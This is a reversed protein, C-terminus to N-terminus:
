RAHGPDIVELDTAPGPLPEDPQFRWPFFTAPMTTNDVSRGQADVVGCVDGLGKEPPRTTWHGAHWQAQDFVVTVGSLTTGDAGLLTGTVEYTYHVLDMRQM